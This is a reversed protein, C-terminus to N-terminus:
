AAATAESASGSGLMLVLVSGLPEEGERTNHVWQWCETSWMLNIIFSPPSKVIPSSLAMGRIVSTNEKISM